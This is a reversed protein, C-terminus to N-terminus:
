EPLQIAEAALLIEREAVRDPQNLQLLNVTVRGAATLPVIQADQLRFHDQWRQRRPHFLPVIEESDLDISALDSGKYKNSLSCACALNNEKTEGGHKRAVVHDVELSVLVATQPILCYECQGGAREYVQQRLPAPIYDSM